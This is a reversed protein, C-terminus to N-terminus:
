AFSVSLDKILKRFATHPPIWSYDHHKKEKNKGRRTLYLFECVTTSHYGESSNFTVQNPFLTKVSIILTRSILDDQISLSHSLFVSPFLHSLFVSPFELLLELSFPRTFITASFSKWCLWFRPSLLTICEWEFGESPSFGIAISQINTGGVGCHM